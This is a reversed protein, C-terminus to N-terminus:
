VRNKKFNNECIHQWYAQRTEIIYAVLIVPIDFNLWYDHHVNSAYYILKNESISFISKTDKSQTKIQLAILKGTPNGSECQEVIADIGVDAVIQERFIWGLEEIVIREVANVGIREIPSYRGSM